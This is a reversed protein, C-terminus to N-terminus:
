TRRTASAQQWPWRSWSVDPGELVVLSRQLRLVRAVSKPALGIQERFRHRHSFGVEDALEAISVRGATVCLRRWAWIVGPVPVPGEQMRSTLVRDLLAFREPWGPADALRSELETGARGLLAPHDVVAGALERMPMKFLAFAGLPTLGVAIGTQRGAHEVGSPLQRRHLRSSADEQYGTYRLVRGRLAAHPM